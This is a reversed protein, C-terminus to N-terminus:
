EEFFDEDVEVVSYTHRVQVGISHKLLLRGLEAGDILVLRPGTQRSAFEVADRSYSSTTVFVGGDAGVDRLAGMFAQLDPRGVTGQDRYRKAQVYIRKLGLADQKILGDFGGDSVGGVHELSDVSDGYGMAHLLKLTLSELFAPPMAQIRAVLERAVSLELEEVAREIAELPPTDAPEAADVEPSKGQQRSSWASAYDEFQRLVETTFGSPHQQLLERGRDTIRMYGRQPRELAGARVLYASAWHVRSNFINTGRANCYTREEQSVGLDDAVLVRLRKRHVDQGTAMATLVPIFYHQFNEIAM